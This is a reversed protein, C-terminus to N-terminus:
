PTPAGKEVTSARAQPLAALWQAGLPSGASLAVEHGDTVIALAARLDPRPLRGTGREPWEILWVHRPQAWERLGLEELEAPSELRYLDLHLM